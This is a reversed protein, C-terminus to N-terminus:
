LTTSMLCHRSGPTRVIDQSSHSSHEGLTPSQETSLTTIRRDGPMRSTTRLSSLPTVLSENLVEVLCIHEMFDRTAKIALWIYIRDPRGEGLVSMMFCVYVIMHALKWEKLYCQTYLGFLDPTCQDIDNIAKLNDQMWSPLEDRLLRYGIPSLSKQEGITDLFRNYTSEHFCQELKRSCSKTQELM